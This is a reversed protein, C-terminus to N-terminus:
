CTSQIVVSCFPVILPQTSRILGIITVVLYWHVQVNTLHMLIIRRISVITTLMYHHYHMTMNVAM